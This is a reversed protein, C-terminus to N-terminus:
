ADIIVQGNMLMPLMWNRLSSLQTSEAQLKEEATMLSSVQEAFSTRLQIPPLAFPYRMIHDKDGRPMKSGKAGATDYAFFIDSEVTWYLYAWDDINTPHLVLVDNCCGGVRDALWIKKFYPRINSLLIDRREFMNSSGADSLYQSELVGGRNPLMNDTSVYTNTTLLSNGISREGYAALNSLTGAEWGEPIERNLTEDYVMKGGSSRYPRGNEDPFDFQTFWYDYILRATDELETMMKKNLAIKDDVSRLVEATKVQAERDPLELEFSALNEQNLKPQASGTILGRLDSAMLYYYVYRIDATGNDGIIHAHNNVWFRGTAWTVIPESLSKLNNGDEAVLVYEGDFIYDDIYDVVGQAGYYPYVKERNAREASSVPMRKYDLIDVAQGLKVKNM